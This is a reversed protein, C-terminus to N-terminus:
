HRFHRVGTFVMAIKNKNCAEISLEDRISGGPQVIAKVKAEAAIEVTDAFPFFADSALVSGKAKEGAREVAHKAADVRNPQGCGIGVTCYGLSPNNEDIYSALVISNSKVLTCAKWAFDVLDKESDTPKLDTVVKYESKEPDGTDTDQVLFGGLVSRMEQKETTIQLPSEILRCNKKKALFLKKVEPTFGPAILCELFLDKVTEFSKEDFVSNVAIISGYASVPDCAIAAQIAVSLHEHNDLESIGCPTLHKIVVAAPNKFVSVARWAADVDLINNYSLQKGQLLNGGLVGGELTNSYLAASQHPNEGYRLEESKFGYFFMGEKSNFWSTIMADYRTCVAFAKAALMRRTELSTKGNKLIEDAVIDYDAPDCIVAVRKFNKAAARLLAIGGIDINEICEDETINKTNITKEFEYLNCVVIDIKELGHEKLEAFDAESDRALIGAHVAPHLTKVRGGLMEPSKTIDSVETVSIGGEILAKATGGSAVFSYELCKSSIVKKAFDALGTKDTVSALILGM